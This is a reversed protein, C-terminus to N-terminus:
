QQEHAEREERERAAQEAEEDEEAAQQKLQDDMAAAFEVFAAEKDKKGPRHWVCALVCTLVGLCRAACVTHPNAVQSLLM